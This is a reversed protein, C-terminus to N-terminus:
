VKWFLWGMQRIQFGQACSPIKHSDVLSYWHCINEFCAFLPSTYDLHIWVTPVKDQHFIELRNFENKLKNQIFVLHLSEWSLILCCFDMLLLNLFWGIDTSHKIMFPKLQPLILRLIQAWRMAKFLPWYLHWCVELRLFLKSLLDMWHISLLREGQFFDTQTKFYSLHVHHMESCWKWKKKKFVNLKKLFKMQIMLLRHDKPWVIM